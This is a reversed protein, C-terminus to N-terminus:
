RVFPSTRVKKEPPKRPKLPKKAIASKKEVKEERTPKDVVYECSDPKGAAHRWTLLSPSEWDTGVAKSTMIYADGRRLPITTKPGVPCTDYFAQFMLPMEKTVEGARYGLVIERESDGHWGIGCGHKASGGKYVDYYLNQECVLPNDQQLWMAAQANLANIFPYDSTKVVTGRGRPIDPEQDFDAMVNNWRANKNQVVKRRTNYKKKDLKGAMFQTQLEHEIQDPADDGLLRQAFGRLVLVSADEKKPLVVGKTPKCTGDAFLKDVEGVVMAGLDHLEAEGVQVVGGSGTGAEWQLKAAKLMNGTVLQSAEGGIKQMGPENEGRNCFTLSVASKPPMKLLQGGDASRQQRAEEAKEIVSM